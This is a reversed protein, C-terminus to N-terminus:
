ASLPKDDSEQKQIIKQVPEYTEFIVTKQYGQVACTRVLFNSALRSRKSSRSLSYGEYTDPRFIKEGTKLKEAENEEECEENEELYTLNLANQRGYKIDAEDSKESGIESANQSEAIGQGSSADNNQVDNVELYPQNM